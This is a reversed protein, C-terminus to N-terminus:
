NFFINTILSFFLFWFIWLFSIIILNYVVFLIKKFLNKIRPIDSFIIILIYLTIFAPLGISLFNNQIM